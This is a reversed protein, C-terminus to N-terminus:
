PLLAREPKRKTRSRPLCECTQSGCKPLHRKNQLSRLQFITAGKAYKYRCKMSARKVKRASEPNWEAHGMARQRFDVASGKLINHTFKEGGEGQWNYSRGSSNHRAGQKQEKM